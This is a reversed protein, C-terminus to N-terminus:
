FPFPIGGKAAPPKVMGVPEPRKEIPEIYFRFAVGTALEPSGISKPMGHVGCEYTGWYVNKYAAQLAEDGAHLSIANRKSKAIIPILISSGVIRARGRVRIEGYDPFIVDIVDGDAINRGYGYMHAMMSTMRVEGPTTHTAVWKYRYVPFGKNTADLNRATERIAEEGNEQMIRPFSEPHDVFEGYFTLFENNTPYDESGSLMENMLSTMDSTSMEAYKRLRDSM